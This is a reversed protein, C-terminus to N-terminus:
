QNPLNLAVSFPSAPLGEKNALNPVANSSFAYRVAKPDTVKPAAAIIRNNRITATAPHFQNDDGAIEFHSPSKGDSTTLGSGIHDFTIQVESKSSEAIKAIPGSHVLKANYDKALAWLALRRGVEQKNKPHIDTLNAIDTTVVMGTKPLLMTELQAQRLDAANVGRYNFPSIQVFYFPFESAFAQRWSKIMAGFLATYKDAQRTNGEGQYWVVGKITFNKLPHIMGNYLRSPIKKSPAQPTNIAQGVHQDYGGLKRLTDTPTWTEASTGGWSADIIGIPVGDLKKHLERAFFYATSSFTPISEPTCPHWQCDSVPVGYMVIGPVVDD